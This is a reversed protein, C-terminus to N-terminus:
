KAHKKKTFQSFIASVQALVLDVMMVFCTINTIKPVDFSFTTHKGTAMSSLPSGSLIDDIPPELPPALEPTAQPPAPKDDSALSAVGLQMMEVLLPLPM